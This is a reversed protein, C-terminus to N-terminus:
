GKGLYSHLKKDADTGDGWDKKSIAVGQIAQGVEIRRIEGDQSFIRDLEAVYIEAPLVMVADMKLAGSRANEVLTMKQGMNLNVWDYGVIYRKEGNDNAFIRITKDANAEEQAHAVLPMVVYSLVVLLTLLRKM